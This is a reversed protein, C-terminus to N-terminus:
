RGLDELAKAMGSLVAVSISMPVGREVLEQVVETTDKHENLIGNAALGVLTVLNAASEPQAGRRILGSKASDPHDGQLLRGMLFVVDDKLREYDITDHNSTDDNSTDDDGTGDGRLIEELERELELDAESLDDHVDDGVDGGSDRDRSFSDLDVAADQLARILTADREHDLEPLFWSGDGLDEARDGLVERVAAFPVHIGAAPAGARAVDISLLDCEGLITPILAWTSLTSGDRLQFGSSRFAEAYKRIRTALQREVRPVDEAGCEPFDDLTVPMSFAGLPILTRRHPTDLLGQRFMTCSPVFDRVADRQANQATLTETTYDVDNDSELTGGGWQMAVRLLNFGIVWDKRSALAGLRMEVEGRRHFFVVGRTSGAGWVHAVFEGDAEEVFEPEDYLDFGQKAAWAGLLENWQDIELTNGRLTFVVSM